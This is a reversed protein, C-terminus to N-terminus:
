RVVLEVHVRLHMAAWGWFVAAAALSVIAVVRGPLQHRDSVKKSKRPRGQAQRTEQKAEEDEAKQFQESILTWARKLGLREWIARLGYVPMGMASRVSTPCRYAVNHAFTDVDNVTDLLGDLLKFLRQHLKYTPPVCKIGEAVGSLLFFDCVCLSARCM